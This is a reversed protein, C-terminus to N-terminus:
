SRVIVLAKWIKSTDNTSVNGRFITKRYSPGEHDELNTSGLFNRGTRYFIFYRTCDTGPIIGPVAPVLISFVKM